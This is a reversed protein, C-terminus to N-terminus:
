KIEPFRIEHIEFRGDAWKEAQKCTRYIPMYGVCGDEDSLDISFEHPLVPILSESKFTLTQVLRAVLYYTRGHQIKTPKRNIVSSGKKM